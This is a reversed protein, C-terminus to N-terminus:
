GNAKLLPPNHHRVSLVPCTARALLHYAFSTHLHRGLQSETRVGLVILGANQSQARALIQDIEMGHELHFAPQCWESDNEGLVAKMSTCYEEALEAQLRENNEAIVPLLQGVDIPANFEKGFFVAYPAAAAAEPTFDSFYIIEDLHLKLDIGSLVHAGVTLTPCPASLLIKETNSGVILHGIGRHVGHVGLVLLDANFRDIASLIVDSPLGAEVHAEVELGLRRVGTALAHLREQALRRTMSPAATVAEAGMAAPTLEVVHLMVITARFHEAFAVAYDLALRSSELFDTAFMIRKVNIDPIM